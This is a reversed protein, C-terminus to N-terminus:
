QVAQKEVWNWRAITDLTIAAAAPHQAAQTGPGAIDFDITEPLQSKLAAFQYGCFPQNSIFLATCSKEVRKLWTVITDTTNPRKGDPKMPTAVFVVPLGKMGEPLTAEEWLEHAAETENHTGEPANHVCDGTLWVVEDFRVGQQWLKILHDFRVKMGLKTSGFILAKDYHDLAPVCAAYMGHKAAWDFVIEKKEEPLEKMEWRESGTKRVYQDLPIGLDVMLQDFAAPDLKLDRLPAAFSLAHLCLVAAILWKKM